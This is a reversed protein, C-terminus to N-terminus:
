RKPAPDGFPNGQFPRQADTDVTAASDFRLVAQRQGNTPVNVRTKLTQPATAGSETFTGTVEYQGSPLTIMLWPGEMKRDLVVAKSKTGTIRLEVEALDAGSPKAVTAIWLGYRQREAHMTIRDELTVGGSLLEHGDATKTRVLAVSAPRPRKKIEAAARQVERVKAPDTSERVGSAANQSHACFAVSALAFCALSKLQM